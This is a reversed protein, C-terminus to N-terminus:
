PQLDYAFLRDGHRLYLRHGIVVPHAWALGEGGSPLQFRGLLQHGDPTAAALGMTGKESLTYLMGDACTLSGKGVGREAYRMQGTAWDLCIWGGRHSSHAAGYVHGDFLIVGGHHNDLDRSNWVPDVQAQRGDVALELMVSGTGYGSSIFIQGDHFLPTTANVDYETLHPYRFLLRGDEADVGLLAKASMTIIMRLGHHEVLRPSAYGAADGTGPSTWVTEGTSKDLAVVSATHGGPCCIVRDGDVLVSEALAWRVNEADFDDLINRQWIRSGSVADLCIVEGLPSEHYVRDGDVTPTGRAGEYSGTWGGGNEAQWRIRGDLYLATLVTRDGLNGATHILGGATTVSAFGEGIGEATWLLPPEGEPWEPLLGTDTSINDSAPGHFRPWFPADDPPEFASDADVTVLTPPETSCAVLIPLLLIMPLYRLWM